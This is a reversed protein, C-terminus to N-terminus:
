IHIYPGCRGGGMERECEKGPDDLHMPICKGSLLMSSTAAAMNHAM